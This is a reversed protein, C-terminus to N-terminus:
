VHSAVNNEGPVPEATGQTKYYDKEIGIGVEIIIKVIICPNYM